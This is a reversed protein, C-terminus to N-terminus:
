NKKTVAPFSRTVDQVSDLLPVINKLMKRILVVQNPQTVKDLISHFENSVEMKM